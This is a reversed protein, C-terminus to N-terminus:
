ASTNPKVTNREYVEICDGGFVLDVSTIVREEEEPEQVTMLFHIVAASLGSQSEEMWDPSKFNNQFERLQIIEDIGGDKNEFM